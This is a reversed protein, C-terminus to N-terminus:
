LVPDVKMPIKMNLQVIIFSVPREITLIGGDGDVPKFKNMTWILVNKEIGKSMLSKLSTTCDDLCKNDFCLILHRSQFGVCLDLYLGKTYGSESSM